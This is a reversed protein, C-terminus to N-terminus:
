VTGSLANNSVTQIPLNGTDPDSWQKDAFSPFGDSAYPPLELVATIDADHTEQSSILPVQVEEAHDDQLPPSLM